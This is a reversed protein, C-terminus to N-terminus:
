RSSKLSAAGLISERPGGGPLGAAFIEGVWEPRDIFPNRNGQVSHVADNRLRESDDVPDAESWKLLVPLEHKFNSLSYDPNRDTDYRVFFYMLARAIDGKMVDRPEFVQEGSADTGLQSWQTGDQSTVSWEVNQVEGYPMNGRRGNTKIDASMLQHLDAQGIGRAGLSQPWTHEANLGASFASKRGVVNHRLDGTYMDEVSSGPEQDIMGFMAERAQAYGVDHHGTAIIGHVSRLLEAGKKGQAAGYYDSIRDTSWREPRDRKITPVEPQRQSRPPETRGPRNANGRGRAEMLATVQAKVVGYEM